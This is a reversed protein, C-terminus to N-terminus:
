VMQQGYYSTATTFHKTVRKVINKFKFHVIIIPETSWVRIITM